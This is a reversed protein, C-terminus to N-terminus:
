GVSAAQSSLSRVGINTRYVLDDDAKIGPHQFLPFVVLRDLYNFVYMAWLMPLLRRDIKRVLAKEADSGPVYAEVDHDLEEKPRGEFHELDRKTDM